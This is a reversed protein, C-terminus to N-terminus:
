SLLSKSLKNIKEVLAPPIPNMRKNANEFVYSLTANPNQTKTPQQKEYFPIIVIFPSELNVSHFDTYSVNNQYIHTIEKLYKLQAFGKKQLSNNITSFISQTKAELVSPIELKEWDKENLDQLEIMQLKNNIATSM